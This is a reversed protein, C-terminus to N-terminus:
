NMRRGKMSVASLFNVIDEVSSEFVEETIYVVFHELSCLLRVEVTLIVFQAQLRPAYSPWLWLVENRVTLLNGRDELRDEYPEMARLAQM